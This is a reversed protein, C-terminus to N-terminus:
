NKFTLNSLYANVYSSFAPLLHFLNYITILIVNTVIFPQIQVLDTSYPM